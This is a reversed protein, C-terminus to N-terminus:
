PLYGFAEKLFFAFEKSYRTGAATLEWNRSYSKGKSDIWRRRRVHLIVKKDRLPFDKIASEEYFGNSSLNFTEYEAPVINSEDLYLDFTDGTEKIEVLEFYEVIESPLVYKTLSQLLNDKEM